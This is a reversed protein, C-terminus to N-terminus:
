LLRAASGNILELRDHDLTYHNIKGIKEVKLVKISVLKRIASRSEKETSYIEVDKFTWYKSFRNFCQWLIFITDNNCLVKYVSLAVAYASSPIQKGPKEEQMTKQMQRSKIAVRVSYKTVQLIKM